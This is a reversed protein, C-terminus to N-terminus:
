WLDMLQGIKQMIPKSTYYFITTRSTALSVGDRVDPVKIPRILLFPTKYLTAIVNRFEFEQNKGARERSWFTGPFKNM